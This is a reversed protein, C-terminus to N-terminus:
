SKLLLGAPALAPQEQKVRWDRVPTFKSCWDSEPNIDPWAVVSDWGPGDARPRLPLLKPPDFRCIPSMVDLVGYFRCNKCARPVEIPAHDSGPVSFHGPHEPPPGIQTKDM